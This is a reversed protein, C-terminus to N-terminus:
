LSGLTTRLRRATLGDNQGIHKEIGSSSFLLRRGMRRTFPLEKWHRYLYDQSVNLRRAAEAISVLQDAQGSGTMYPAPSLRTRATYRIVEIEGLLSPLDDASFERAARLLNQIEKQL